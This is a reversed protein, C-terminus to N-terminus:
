PILTSLDALHGRYVKIVIKKQENIQEALKKMEDKCSASNTANFYFVQSGGFASVVQYQKSHKVDSYDCLITAGRLGDNSDLDIKYGGSTFRVPVAVASRTPIVIYSFPEALGASAVLFIFLSLVANKM